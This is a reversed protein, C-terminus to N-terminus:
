GMPKRNENLRGIIWQLRRRRTQEQKADLYHATYTRQVSPAMAALNALAQHAGAATLAEVLAGVLAQRVPSPRAAEWTGRERAQEIATQGAPAMAGQEALRQALARNRQSWVSGKRRPTFRKIYRTEDVRRIQGDIWGFCLAEELAEAASLTRVKGGKGLVLWIGTSAAHHRELWRRFAGRDEFVLEEDGM